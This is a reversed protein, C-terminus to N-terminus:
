APPGGALRASNELELNLSPSQKLIFLLSPSFSVKVKARWLCTHVCVCDHVSAFHFRLSLIFLRSDNRQTRGAAYM